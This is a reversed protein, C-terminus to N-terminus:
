SRCPIHRNFHQFVMNYSYTYTPKAYFSIEVTARLQRLM